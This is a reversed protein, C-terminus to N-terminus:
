SKKELLKRLEAAMHASFGSGPGTTANLQTAAEHIGRELDALQKELKRVRAPEAKSSEPWGLAEKLRNGFDAAKSCGEM